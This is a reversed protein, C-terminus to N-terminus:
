SGYCICGQQKVLTLGTEPLDLWHYRLVHFTCDSGPTSGAYFTIPPDDSFVDYFEQPKPM